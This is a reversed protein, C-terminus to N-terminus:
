QMQVTSPEADSWHAKRKGESWSQLSKTTLAGVPFAKEELKMKSKATKFDIPCICGSCSWWCFQRRRKMEQYRIQTVITSEFGLPALFFTCYHRVTAYHSNCRSNGIEFYIHAQRQLIQSHAQGQVPSGKLIYHVQHYFKPIIQVYWSQLFAQLLM